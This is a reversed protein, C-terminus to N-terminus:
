LVRCGERVGANCLDEVAVDFWCVDQDRLLADELQAVEAKCPRHVRPPGRTAVGVVDGGAPVPGGLDDDCIHVSRSHIDPRDTLEALTVRHLRDRVSLRLRQMKTMECLAIEVDPRSDGSLSILATRQEAWLCLLWGHHLFGSDHRQQSSCWVGSYWGAM